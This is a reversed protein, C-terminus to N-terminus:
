PPTQPPTLPHDAGVEGWLCPPHGMRYLTARALRDTQPMNLPQDVSLDLFTRLVFGKVLFCLIPERHIEIAFVPM